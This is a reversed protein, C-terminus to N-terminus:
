FKTDKGGVFLLWYFFWCFSLVLQYSL